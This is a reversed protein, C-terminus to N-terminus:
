HQLLFCCFSTCKQFIRFQPVWFKIKYVSHLTVILGKIPHGKPRAVNDTPETLASFQNLDIIEKIQDSRNGKQLIHHCKNFSRLVSYTLYIPQLFLLQFAVLRTSTLSLFVTRSLFFTIPKGSALRKEKSSVKSTGRM